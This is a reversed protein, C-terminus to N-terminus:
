RSGLSSPLSSTVMAASDLTSIRAVMPSIAIMSRLVPHQFPQRTLDRRDSSSKRL